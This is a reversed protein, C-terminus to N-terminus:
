SVNFSKNSSESDSENADNSKGYASVSKKRNSFANELMKSFRREANPNPTLTNSGGIQFISKRKNNMPTPDALRGDRL